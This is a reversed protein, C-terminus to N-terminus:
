PLGSIAKAREPGSATLAAWAGRRKPYRQPRYKLAQQLALKERRTGEFRAYRGKDPTFDPIWDPHSRLAAPRFGRRRVSRESLWRRERRSFFRSRGRDASRGTGAGLYLWNAAQYVAGYRARRGIPTPSSYEGASSSPPRVAPKAILFSAANPPAWHACAGRALCIARDRHEQGCLDGSEPAPGAAFVAVGALEGSPARSTRLLGADGDAHHPAM